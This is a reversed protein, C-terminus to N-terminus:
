NRRDQAGRFGVLSDELLYDLYWDRETGGDLRDRSGDEQVTTSNLRSGLNAVRVPFSANSNWEAMIAALAARNSDHSTTGGIVIDDGGTGALSDIGEGGILLDRGKGGNLSDRGLGGLLVDNGDGGSLNDNGDEGYLYDNGGGGSLSDNGPGGILTDWGGSATLRDNGAEGDLLAPLSLGMSVTDNGAGAFVVVRRFQAMGFQGRSRNNINVQIKLRHTRLQTVTISENAPTGVILLMNQGPTEPDPVISVTGPNVTFIRTAYDEVEGDAASGTPGLGGATSLRFRAYTDGAAADSPVAFNLTTLGAAVPLSDAIKEGADFTGNRNFDVWADLRGTGSATVVVAASRGTIIGFPMVVGDEDDGNLDDGNAAATPQGDPEFDVTAGLRLASSVFHRAGNNLVLTGYSAPADGLDPPVVVSTTETASNNASNTDTGATTAVTATNTISTGGPESNVRVVLSFTATAGAPFSSNTATVNGTGGAAPRNITFTPGGTQTMSVFTTNAPVADTLITNPANSPGANNVTIAYTITGGAAVTDLPDNKSISLDARTQVTTSALSSNNSATSDNPTTVTATNNITTTTGTNVLVVFSFVATDGPALSARTATVAGTSGAGGPPPTITFGPGSTQSMSVFTTGAPVNDTLTVTGTTAQSPNTVTITYTIPSGSTVPGAPGTKTVGVDPQPPPQVTTFADDSNNTGNGDSPSSVSVSNTVQTGNPLGANVNVTFTFVATGPAMSAATATVEGGAPANVIFGSAGSVPTMSVFTANSPILDTITVNTANSPGPNTLTITFSTNQGPQAFASQAVKDITLDAAVQIPTTLISEDNGAVPDTTDSDITARNELSGTADAPVRVQIVFTGAATGAPLTARTARVIGSVAGNDTVTWDVSPPTVSIITVGDPLDDTFVVNQAADPGQTSVQVNYTLIDGAIATTPNATKLVGLNAQVAVTTTATAENNLTDPESSSTTAVARNSIVTGQTAAPLVQVVLEFTATGTPFSAITAAATGTGGPAPRTLQFQSAGATQEFSVFTTNTPIADSLLVDQAAVAGDNRLTITYTINGGPAVTTAPNDTKLVVLETVQPAQVTTTATASNNGVPPQPENADALITATNTITTNGQTGANVRVVMTFTAQQGATLPGQANVPGTGTQSFTWGPATTPNPTFSVFTTNAPIPDQLRVLNANSPGANEITILYSITEGALVNDDPTDIKSRAVLEYQQIVRTDVESTNNDPNQDSASQVTATNVINDTRGADVVVVMTFVTTLSTDTAGNTPQMSAISRVVDGTGNAPPTSIETFVQDGSVPNFSEFVTGAPVADRLTVTDSAEDGVNTVSITYTLRTGAIVENPDPGVKTVLIDAALLERGELPEM